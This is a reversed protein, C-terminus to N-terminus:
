ICREGRDTYFRNQALMLQRGEVVTARPGNGRASRPTPPTTTQRRFDARSSHTHTHDRLRCATTGHFLCPATHRDPTPTVATGQAKDREASYVCKGGLRKLGIRFGGIGAFLQIFTFRAEEAGGTVDTRSEKNKINTEM